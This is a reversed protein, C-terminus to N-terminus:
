RGPASARLSFLSKRLVSRGFDRRGFNRWCHRRGLWFVLNVAPACLRPPFVLVKTAREERLGAQRLEALSTEAGALFVLEGGLRLPASPFCPSEYCAGERLGAQRLEALL